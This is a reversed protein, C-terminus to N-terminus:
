TKLEKLYQKVGFGTREERFLMANAQADDVFREAKADWTLKRGLKMAMYGLVCTTSTRQAEELPMALPGRTRMEEIWERNHELPRLLPKSVPDEILGKRNAAIPMGALKSTSVGVPDSKTRKRSFGCFIWDGSEGIFRVGCPYKRTSGLKVVAGSAYTWTIDCEGHVDWLKRGKPYECTGEVSVPGGLEECLGRQASDLHHAGWNAIMGMDYAQITMWGGRAFNM